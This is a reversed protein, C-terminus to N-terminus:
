RKGCEGGCGSGMRHFDLSGCCPCAPPRGTGFPLEWDHDCKICKFRRMEPMKLVGGEIKLAKGHILADATKRRASELIRGFTPRSVNMREAAEGQYLGDYDALRIAEFEDVSLVVEELSSVPIGRPKFYTSGPLMDVQRPCKPRVM